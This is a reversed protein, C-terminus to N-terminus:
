RWSWRTRSSVSKRSTARSAPCARDSDDVFRTLDQPPRDVRTSRRPWVPQPRTNSTGYTQRSRGPPRTAPNITQMILCQGTEVSGRDALSDTPNLLQLVPLVAAARHASLRVQDDNQGCALAHAHARVQGLHQVADAATRHQGMHQRRRLCRTGDRSASTTAGPMSATRASASRPPAPCRSRRASRRLRPVASATSAARAASSRADPRRSEDQEGVCRQDLRRGQASQRGRQVGAGADGHEAELRRVWGAVAAQDDVGCPRTVAMRSCLSALSASRRM